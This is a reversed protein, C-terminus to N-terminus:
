VSCAEVVCKEITSECLAQVVELAKHKSWKKDVLFQVTQSAAIRLEEIDTADRAPM